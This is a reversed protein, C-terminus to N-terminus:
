APQADEDAAGQAARAAPGGRRAVLRASVATREGGQRAGALRAARRERAERTAADLLAERATVAGERVALQAERELLRKTAAELASAASSAKSEAVSTALEAATKELLGASQKVKDADAALERAEASRDVRMGDLKAGLSSVISELRPVLAGGVERALQASDVPAAPPPAAAGGLPSRVAHEREADVCCACAARPDVSRSARRAGLSRHADTAASPLRRSRARHRLQPQMGQTATAAHRRLCPSGGARRRWHHADAAAAARQQLLFRRGAQAGHQVLLRRCRAGRAAPAVTAAPAAAGSSSLAGFPKAATAFSFAATAPAPAASSAALGAACTAAPPAAPKADASLLKIVHEYDPRQEPPAQGMRQTAYILATKVAPESSTTPTAIASDAGADLLVRVCDGWGGAAAMMLPTVGRRNALNVSANAQLLRRVMEQRGDRAAWLLATNGKDDDAHDASAGNRLAEDVREFDGISAAHLLADDANSAGSSVASGCTPSLASLGSASKELRAVQAAVSGGPTTSSAKSGPPTSFPSAPAAAPQPSGFGGAGGLKMAGFLGGGGLGGGLGGGASLGGGFANSSSSSFTFPPPARSRAARPLPPSATTTMTM